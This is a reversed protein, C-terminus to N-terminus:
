GEKPPINNNTYGSSYPLCFHYKFTIQVEVSIYRKAKKGIKETIQNLSMFYIRTVCNKTLQLTFMGM